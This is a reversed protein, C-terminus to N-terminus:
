KKILPVTFCQLLSGLSPTLIGAQWHGLSMQVIGKVHKHGDRFQEPLQVLHDKYPGGLQFYEIRVAENGQLSIGNKWFCTVPYDRRGFWFFKKKKKKPQLSKPEFCEPFCMCIITVTPSALSECATLNMKQVTGFFNADLSLVLRCSPLEM